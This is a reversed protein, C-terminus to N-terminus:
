HGAIRAPEPPAAAVTADYSEQSLDRLLDRHQPLRSLDHHEWPDAELDFLERIGKGHYTVLKHTRTRYMTAHTPDPFALAGRYEARM